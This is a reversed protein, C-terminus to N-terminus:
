FRLGFGISSQFGWQDEVDFQQYNLGVKPEIYFTRNLMGTLGVELGGTLSNDNWSTGASAQMYARVNDKIVCKVPYYRVYVNTYDYGNSLINVQGGVQFQDNVQYGIVPNISLDQLAVDAFNTNTGAFWDGKHQAQTFVISLTFCLLFLVKKM